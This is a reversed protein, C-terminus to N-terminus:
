RASRTGQVGNAPSVPASLRDRYQNIPGALHNALERARTELETSEVSELANIALLMLPESLEEDERSGAPQDLTKEIPVVIIRGFEGDVMHFGRDRTEQWVESSLGAVVRVGDKGRSPDSACSILQGSPTLLVATHIEPLHLVQSLLNHISSLILM